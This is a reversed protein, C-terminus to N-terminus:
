CAYEAVDGELVVSVSPMEATEELEAHQVDQVDKLAAILQKLGDRDVISEVKSVSQTERTIERTAKKPSDENEFFTEKEKTVEKVVQFNLEEVAQEIKDLLKDSVDLVRKKRYKKRAM